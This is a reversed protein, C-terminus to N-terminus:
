RRHRRDTSLPVIKSDFTEVLAKLENLLAADKEPQPTTSAEPGLGRGQGLGLIHYEVDEHKGYFVKAIMPGEGLRDKVTDRWRGELSWADKYKKWKGQTVELGDEVFEFEGCWRLYKNMEKMLAERTAIRDEKGASHYVVLLQINNGPAGSNVRFYGDYQDKGPFTGIIGTSLRGQASAAIPVFEWEVRDPLAKKFDLDINNYKRLFRQLGGVVNAYIFLDYSSSPLTTTQRNGEPDTYTIEVGPFTIQKLRRAVDLENFLVVFQRTRYSAIRAYFTNAEVKRESSQEGMAAGFVDRRYTEKVTVGDPYVQKFIVDTFTKGSINYIVMSTILSFKESDIDFKARYAPYSSFLPGDEAAFPAAPLLCLVAAAVAVCIIFRM